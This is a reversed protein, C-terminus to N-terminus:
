HSSRRGTFIMGVHSRSDNDVRKVAHVVAAAVAATISHYALRAQARSQTVGALVRV